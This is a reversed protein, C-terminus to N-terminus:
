RREWILWYHLPQIYHPSHILTIYLTVIHVLSCYTITVESEWIGPEPVHIGGTVLLTTRGQKNAM